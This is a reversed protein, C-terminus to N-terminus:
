PVRAKGDSKTGIYVAVYDGMIKKGAAKARYSNPAHEENYFGTAPMIGSEFVRGSYDIFEGLLDMVKQMVGPIKMLLHSLAVLCFKIDLCHTQSAQTIPSGMTVYYYESNRHVEAGDMHYTLPVLKDVRYQNRAVVAHESFHREKMAHKWFDRLGADGEDGLVSIQFQEPGQEYLAHCIEYPILIPM